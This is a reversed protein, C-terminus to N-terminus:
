NHQVDIYKKILVAAEQRQKETEKPEKHCDVFMETVVRSFDRFTEGNGNLDLERTADSIRGSIRSRVLVPKITSDNYFPRITEISKQYTERNGKKYISDGNKISVFADRIEDDAIDCDGISLIERMIDEVQLTNIFYELGQNLHNGDSFFVSSDVCLGSRKALKGKEFVIGKNISNLVTNVCRVTDELKQYDSFEDCGSIYLNRKILYLTPSVIEDLCASQNSLLADFRSDYDGVENDIMYIYLREDESSYFNTKKFAKVIDKIYENGYHSIMGAFIIYQMVRIDDPIDKRGNIEDVMIKSYVLLVNVPVQMDTKSSKEM